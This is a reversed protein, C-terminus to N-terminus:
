NTCHSCKEGIKSYSHNERVKGWGRTVRLVLLRFNHKWLEWLKEMSMCQIYKYISIYLYPKKSPPNKKKLLLPIM